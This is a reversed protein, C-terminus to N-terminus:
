HVEYEGVVHCYFIFRHFVAEVHPPFQDALPEPATDPTIFDIITFVLKLVAVESLFISLNDVANKFSKARDQQEIVFLSLIECQVSETM